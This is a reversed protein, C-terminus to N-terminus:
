YQPALFEYSRYMFDIIRIKQQATIPSELKKIDQKFREQHMMPVKHKHHRLRDLLYLLKGYDRAHFDANTSLVDEYRNLLLGIEVLSTRIPQFNIYPYRIRNYLLKMGYGIAWVAGVTPLIAGVAITAKSAGYSRNIEQKLCETIHALKSSMKSGYWQYGLTYLILTSVVDAVGPIAKDKIDEIIYKVTKDIAVPNKLGLFATTKSGELYTPKYSGVEEKPNQYAAIVPDVATSVQQMIDGKDFLVAKLFNMATDLQGTEPHAFCDAAHQITDDTIEFKPNNSLNRIHTQLRTRTQKDQTLSKVQNFFGDRMEREMTEIKQKRLEDSLNNDGGLMTSIHDMEETLKKLTDKKEEPWFVEKFNKLPKIAYDNFSESFRQQWEAFKSRHPYMLATTGLVGIAGAAYWLWNRVFTNPKKDADIENSVTLESYRWLGLVVEQIINLLRKYSLPVATTHVPKALLQVNIADVLSAIWSYQEQMSGNVKFKDVEKSIVGLVEFYHDQREKLRKIHNAVEVEQRPGKFWKLPSKHFWYSTTHTQQEKWYSLHYDITSLIRIIKGRVDEVLAAAVRVLVLERANLFLPDTNHDYNEPYVQLNNIISLFEHHAKKRIASQASNVQKNIQLTLENSLNLLLKIAQQDSTPQIRKVYAEVKQSFSKRSSHAVQSVSAGSQPIVAIVSHVFFLFSLMMASRRIHTKKM